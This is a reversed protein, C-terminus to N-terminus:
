CSTTSSRYRNITELESTASIYNTPSPESLPLPQDPCHITPTRVNLVVNLEGAFIVFVELRSARYTRTTPERAKQILSPDALGGLLGLRSCLADGRRRLQITITFGEQKCRVPPMPRTLAHSEDIPAILIVDYQSPGRASPPCLHVTRSRSSRDSLFPPNLTTSLAVHSTHRSPPSPHLTPCLTTYPPIPPPLCSSLLNASDPSSVPHCPRQAPAAPCLSLFAPSSEATAQPRSSPSLSRHGTSVAM